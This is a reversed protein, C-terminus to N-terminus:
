EEKAKTEAAPVEAPKPAAPAEAAPKPKIVPFNVAHIAGTPCEAVCKKCLKCKTFDIYAVNNEVTIAEFPCVKACKGCGICAAKCAKRAVAGKDKNVCSVFVRMNRKGKNRLEIIAKPCAKVCAGCRICRGKEHVVNQVIGEERGERAPLQEATRDPRM